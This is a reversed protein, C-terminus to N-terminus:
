RTMLVFNYLIVTINDRCEFFTETKGDIKIKNFYGQLTTHIKLMLLTLECSENVDILLPKDQTVYM